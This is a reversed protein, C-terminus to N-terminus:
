ISNFVIQRKVHHGLYVSPFLPSHPMKLFTIFNKVQIKKLGRSKYQFDQLYCRHFFLIKQVM